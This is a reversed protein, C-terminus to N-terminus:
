VLYCVGKGSCLFGQLQHPWDAATPLIGHALGYVAFVPNPHIEGVQMLALQPPQTPDLQIQWHEMAAPHHVPQFEEVTAPTKLSDTLEGFKDTVKLLIKEAPTKQTSPKFTVKGETTDFSIQHADLTEDMILMAVGMFAQLPQFFGLKKDLRPKISIQADTIQQFADTYCALIQAWGQQLHKEWEDLPPPNGTDTLPPTYRFLRKDKDIKLSHLNEQTFHNALSLPEQGHKIAYDFEIQFLFYFEYNLNPHKDSM